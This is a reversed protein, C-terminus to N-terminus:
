NRCYHHPHDTTIKNNNNNNNLSISSMVLSTLKRLPNLYFLNGTNSQEREINECGGGEEEWIKNDSEVVKLYTIHVRHGTPPSSFVCQM